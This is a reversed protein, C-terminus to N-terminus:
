FVLTRKIVKRKSITRRSESITQIFRNGFRDYYCIDFKATINSVLLITNEDLKPIEIYEMESKGFYTNTDGNHIQMVRINKIDQNFKLTVNFIDSKIVKLRADYEIKDHSTFISFEGFEMKRLITILTVISILFSFIPLLNNLITM